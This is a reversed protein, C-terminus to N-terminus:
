GLLDEGGVGVKLFFKFKYILFGLFFGGFIFLYIFLHLVLSLLYTYMLVKLFFSVWTWCIKLFSLKHLLNSKWMTKKQFKINNSKQQM